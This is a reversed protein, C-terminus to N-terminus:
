PSTVRLRLARQQNPAGVPVTDRVEVTFTPAAGTEGVFGVGTTAAGHVSTALDSWTVLDSSGQVTYTLDTAVSSRTFTMSLYKTGSYDKIIVVPLGAQSANIPSLGLAYEMLNVIDDGDYDFTFGANGGSLGFSAIYNAAQTVASLSFTQTADPPIGNTATVTINPFSGTGASTPTGSLVGVSSLSLGPPLTGGTVSFTPSGTATFAFSYFTGVVVPSPPPGNTISPATPAIVTVNFYRVAAAGCSDLATVHVATTTLTSGATATATVVGNGQNVTITGGGPLTTPLVSYPTAVLNGNADAAAAAPTSTNSNSRPVSIDPYAGLTPSPNPAVILNVIGSTTSGISDTVTLTIPYTRTTLTTVLPCDVIASLSVNGANISPTIHAGFPLDSVAVTVPNGDADSATGVTAVTATPTGRVVTISGTINLTPAVNTSTITLNADSIDFFINGVAEVKIRGQTTAVNAVSPITVLASGNNPVSAALVFPFTYGGDTSLSIKVNACNIPPVNTNTVNWTVTQMSGGAITIATNPATIAFPGATGVSVSAVTTSAWDSGGGGARNDRVTVKFTMTRSTSPLVEGTAFGGVTAPPVNANNLVYTLAPFVRTPNTTPPYSRFLPMNGSDVPNQTAQASGLDFEEWCYTLTDGNLDSASATLAFPTQAPITFASLPTITPPNNGTVTSVPCTSGGGGTSTYNDIETYNITYFYDDSHPALNTNGCIGAYAMITTGSGVEYATSPNRNSGACNSVSSNFPHNGGFQHGMEHVVYDIDYPDGLPTTLGTVGHAKSGAICIVHLNAIGGGGTSFVHGFDYNATGIVSDLNSQNQGLMTGGSGNTYPDTAGNLYIISAENNILQFRIAFEREYVASCRNISTIIAALTGALTVPNPSCVATAYEGTCALALRYTRLSSGTPRSPAPSSTKHDKIESEALCSFPKNALFDRKFYSICHTNTERAYPDIYVDGRPSLIIAHFGRPTLDIRATAAPDDIGQAVYTKLEPFRKALGPAMIPSEQVLFRANEGSPMPIELETGTTEIPGSSEPLASALVNRLAARDVKLTRYVQPVIDRQPPAGNAATLARAVERQDVDKWLGSRPAQAFLAGNTGMLFLAVFAARSLSTM